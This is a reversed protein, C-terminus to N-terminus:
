DGDLALGQGADIARLCDLCLCDSYRGHLRALTPDDLQVRACDCRIPSNVQCEFVRGCRPCTKEEHNLM